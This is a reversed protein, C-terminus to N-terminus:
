LTVIILVVIGVGREAPSRGAESQAMTGEMVRHGFPKWVSDFSAEPLDASPCPGHTGELVSGGHVSDEEGDECVFVFPLSDSGREGQCM